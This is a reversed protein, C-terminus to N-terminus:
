PLERLRMGENAVSGVAADWSWPDANVYLCPAMASLDDRMRALEVGPIRVQVTTGDSFPLLWAFWGDSDAEPARVPEGELRAVRHRIPVQELEVVRESVAALFALLAAAALDERGDAIPLAGPYNAGPSIM